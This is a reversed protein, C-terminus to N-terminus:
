RSVAACRGRQIFVCCPRQTPPDGVLVRARNREPQHEIVLKYAYSDGGTETDLEFRQTTRRQNVSLDRAPFVEDVKRGRVVFEQIRRLADLLSTKGTGNRGLLVNSGDFRVEFNEFCRFNDTYLRKLM